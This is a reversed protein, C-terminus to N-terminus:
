LNVKIAETRYLWMWIPSDSTCLHIKSKWIISTPDSDMRINTRVFLCVSWSNKDTILNRVEQIGQVLNRNLNRKLKKDQNKNRKKVGGSLLSKSRTVDLQLITLHPTFSLPFHWRVETISGLMYFYHTSFTLFSASFVSEWFNLDM